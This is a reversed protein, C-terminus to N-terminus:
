FFIRKLLIFFLGFFRVRGRATVEEGLVTTTCFAVYSKLGTVTGECKLSVMKCDTIHEFEELPFRKLSYFVLKVGNM